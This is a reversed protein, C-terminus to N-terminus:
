YAVISVGLSSSNIYVKDELRLGMQSCFPISFTYFCLLKLANLSEYIPELIQYAKLATRSM